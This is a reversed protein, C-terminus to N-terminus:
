ANIEVKGKEKAHEGNKDKVKFIGRFVCPPPFLKGQGVRLRKECHSLYAPVDLENVLKSGEAAYLKETDSLFKKEFAEQVYEYGSDDCSAVAM